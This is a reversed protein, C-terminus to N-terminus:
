VETNNPPAGFVPLFRAEIRWDTVRQGVLALAEDVEERTLTRLVELVAGRMSVEASEVGPILGLAMRAARVAHVSLLGDIQVHIRQRPM